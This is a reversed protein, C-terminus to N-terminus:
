FLPSGEINDVTELDSPEIRERYRGIVDDMNWKKVVWLYALAKRRDSKKYFLYAEIFGEAIAEMDKRTLNGPKGELSPVQVKNGVSLLDPNPINDLNVRYINPWLRGRNYFVQSVTWLKEGARVTYEGGPTGSTGVAAAPEEEPQETEEPQEDAATQDPVEKDVQETDASEVIETVSDERSPWFIIALVIILIPIVLLLWKNSHKKEEEEVASPAESVSEILPEEPEGPVDVHEVKASAIEGELIEAQLHAYNRNIYQRLDAEAKFNISSQAPIEMAEGTQPNRGPRAKHWGLRFRGLGPINAHGDRDLGERTVNGMEILLDHVLRKSTGTEEAIRDVLDSFTIKENM